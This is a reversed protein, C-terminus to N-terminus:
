SILVDKAVRPSLDRSSPGGNTLSSSWSLFLVKTRKVGPQAMPVRGPGRQSLDLKVQGVTGWM